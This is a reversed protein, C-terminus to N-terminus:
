LGIFQSAVARLGEPDVESMSKIAQAQAPAQEAALQAQQAQARQERILAVQDNAVIMDPDLGLMDAYRDVIEDANLKDVVEPRFQAVAGVTGLLRDMAGLGVAKQAQALASVFEINLDQGQLAEPAPPLLRAEVMRTFTYDVLPSLLEDHLRELVPGLMLMKEEQRISIETATRVDDQQSILLFLDVYFAADIRERVDRIQELVYDLRLPVEFASRVGGTAGMTDPYYSVGGPLLDERNKMSAPVQVPPDAQYDIAKGKMVQLRQLEAGDGLAMSGPGWGYVDTVSSLDWRPALAPFTRFGGESLFGGETADKEFYVSRFPMNAADRKRPDRTHRPEIAHVITHWQDKHGRDYANRVTASIRERPFAAIIQEVTMDFERYLTDVRQEPSQAIWYEGVTMGHGRMVTGHSPQLIAAATGFSGLEDYVAHLVRYIGSRAFIERMLQTVDDLWRRVDDQDNVKPDPAALRFWPRAPSTMGAMLGAGMVRRARIGTNDIIDHFRDKAKTRDTHLFRGGIPHFVESIDRWHSVWGSRETDLAGMRQRYYTRDYEM